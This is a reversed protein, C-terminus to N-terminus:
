LTTRPQFAKSGNSYPMDAGGLPFPLVTCTNCQGGQAVSPGLLLDTASALSLWSLEPPVHLPCPPLLCADPPVACTPASLDLMKEMDLGWELATQTQQFKSLDVTCIQTSSNHYRSYPFLNGKGM